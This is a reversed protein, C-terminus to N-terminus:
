AIVRASSEDALWVGEEVCEGECPKGGPRRGTANRRAVVNVVSGLARMPEEARAKAPNSACRAPPGESRRTTTDEGIM